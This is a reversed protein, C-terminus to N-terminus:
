NISFKKNLLKHKNKLNKSIINLIKRSTFGNGFYLKMKSIKKKFNESNAKIISKKINLITCGSQIISDHLFRGKQRFGINITPIKFYPVEIIGSSSNGIVFKSSKLEQFYNEGGLSEIFKFKKNKKIIKKIYHIYELSKKEHGPSTILVNYDFHDLTKIILSFNKKWKFNNNITEPHYTLIVQNNKKNKGALKKKTKLIKEVGLSGVNHVRFKEESLKLINKKYQNCIVFHLHSSKTIMHRVQDDLAGETIEGGHIHIILSRYIIASSVIPLREVRDGLIIVADFKYKNFINNIEKQTNYLTKTQGLFNDPTAITKFKSTIKFNYKKIENITNGYKKELHTGHVFLQYNFKNNKKISTLLPEFITMDSRTSTFFALTHKM